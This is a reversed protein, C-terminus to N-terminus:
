KESGGTIHLVMPLSNIALIVPNDKKPLIAYSAPKLKKVPLSISFPEDDTEPSQLFKGSFINMFEGAADLALNDSINKGDPMNLAKSALLRALELPMYFEITGTEPGRFSQSVHCVPGNIGPALVVVAAKLGSLNLIIEQMVQACSNRKNKVRDSM